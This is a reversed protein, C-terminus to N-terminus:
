MSGELHSLSSVSGLFPFPLISLRTSWSKNRSLVEFVATVWVHACLVNLISDTEDKRLLQIKFSGGVVAVEKFIASEIRQSENVQECFQLSFEPKMELGVLEYDLFKSREFAECAKHVAEQGFRLCCKPCM